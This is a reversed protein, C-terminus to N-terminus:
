QPQDKLVSELVNLLTLRKPIGGKIRLHVLLDFKKNIYM